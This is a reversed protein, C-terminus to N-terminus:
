KREWAQSTPRSIISLDTSCTRWSHLDFQMTEKWMWKTSLHEEWSWCFSSFSTHSSSSANCSFLQFICLLGLRLFFTPPHYLPIHSFSIRRIYCTMRFPAGVQGDHVPRGSTTSQLRGDYAKETSAGSTFSMRFGSLRDYICRQCWRPLLNSTFTFNGSEKFSVLFHYHLLSCLDKLIILAQFITKENAVQLIRFALFM